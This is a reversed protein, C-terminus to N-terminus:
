RRLEALFDRIGAEIDYRPEYGLDARARTLDFPQRRPHRDARPPGGRSATAGPVVRQLAAVITDSTDLAGSGINYVQHGLREAHVALAV